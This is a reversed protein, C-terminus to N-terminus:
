TADGLNGRFRHLLLVKRQLWRLVSGDFLPELASRILEIDEPTSLFEFSKSPV